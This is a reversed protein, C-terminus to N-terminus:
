LDGNQAEESRPSKEHTPKPSPLPFLGTLYLFGLAGVVTAFAVALAFMRLAEANMGTFIVDKFFFVCLWTVCCTIVCLLGWAKYALPIRPVTNMKNTGFFDFHRRFDRSSSRSGQLAGLFGDAHTEKGRGM